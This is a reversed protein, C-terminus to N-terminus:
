HSFVNFIKKVHKNTIPYRRKYLVQEDGKGM